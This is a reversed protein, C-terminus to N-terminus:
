KSSVPPGTLRHPDPTRVTRRSEPLSAASATAPPRRRRWRAGSPSRRPSATAAAASRRKACPVHHQQHAGREGHDVDGAHSLPHQRQKRQGESLSSGSTNNTSSPSPCTLGSIKVPASTGGSSKAPPFWASRTRRRRRIRFRRHYRGALRAVRAAVDRQRQHARDQADRQKIEEDLNHRHRDRGLTPVLSVGSASTACIRTPTRGAGPQQCQARNNEIQPLRVALM